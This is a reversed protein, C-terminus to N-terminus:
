DTSRATSASRLRSSRFWKWSIRLSNRYISLLGPVVVHVCKWVLIATKFVIRRRVPLWHLIPTIHGRRRAGSLLRAATNQISQPLKTQIDAATGALVANCYDLRCHIFAQVLSRLANETLSRQVVHLQCMQYFYVQSVATLQPDM